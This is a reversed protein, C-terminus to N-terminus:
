FPWQAKMILCAVAEKVAVKLKFAKAMKVAM